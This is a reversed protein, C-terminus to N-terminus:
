MTTAPCFMWGPHTCAIGDEHAWLEIMAEFDAAAFAAYFAENVLLISHEDDM